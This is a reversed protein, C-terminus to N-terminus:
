KNIINFFIKVQNEESFDNYAREMGLYGLRESFYDDNIIKLIGNKIELINEPDVLVGNLNDIVADGVGGSRGALVPTELANAELYVIGFGEFDGEINRSPMAFLDSVYLWEWKEKDDLRGLFRIRDDNGALNRLYEEDPGEGAILYLLDPNDIDKLAKIMNDFGKRKVLRGISFILKKEEYHNKERLETSYVEEDPFSIGPNVVHLNDVILPYDEKVVNLLYSNSCIINNANKIIIGLLVKKRFFKRAYEYDMGHLVLSYKIRLIKSLFFVVTGVPLVQGVILHKIKEKRIIAPIYWFMSLWKILPFGLINKRFVGDEEKAKDSLCTLVFLDSDPCHDKLSTYYKAVGGNFPKYETTILLTKM